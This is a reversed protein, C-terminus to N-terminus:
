VRVEEPNVFEVAKYLVKRFLEGDATTRQTLVEAALGEGNIIIENARVMAAAQTEFREAFIGFRVIYPKITKM